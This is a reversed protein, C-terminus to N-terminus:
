CPLGKPFALGESAWWSQTKTCTARLAAPCIFSPFGAIAWMQLLGTPPESNHCLRLSHIPARHVKLANWVSDVGEPTQLGCTSRCPWAPHKDSVLAPFLDVRSKPVHTFHRQWGCPFALQGCADGPRPEAARRGEPGWFTETECGPCPGPQHGRSFVTRCLCLFRVSESKSPSPNLNM